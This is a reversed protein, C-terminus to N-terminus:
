RQERQALPLEFRCRMSPITSGRARCGAPHTLLRRNRGFDREFRGCKLRMGDSVGTVPSSENLVKKESVPLPRWTGRATM